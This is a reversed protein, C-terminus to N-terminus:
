SIGMARLEATITASDIAGPYAQHIVGARDIFVSFPLAQSLGYERGIAGLGGVVSTPDRVAPFTLHLEDYFALGNGNELTNVGLVTYGRAKFDVYTQQIAPLEARCEACWSAFFNLLVVQGRLDALSTTRNDFTQASFGPASKGPSLDAPIAQPSSIVPLSASGPGPGLGLFGRGGASLIIALAAVVAALVGVPLVWPPLGSSRAARRGAARKSM